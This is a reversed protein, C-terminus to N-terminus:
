ECRTEHGQFLRGSSVSGMQLAFFTLLVGSTGYVDFPNANSIADLQITVIAGSSYILNSSLTSVDHQHVNIRSRPAIKVWSSIGATDFVKKKGGHQILSLSLKGKRPTLCTGPFWWLLGKWKHAHKREM